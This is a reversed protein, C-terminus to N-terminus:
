RAALARETDHQKQHWRPITRTGFEQECDPCRLLGRREHSGEPLPQLQEELVPARRIPRITGGDDSRWAVWQEGKVTIEIEEGIAPEERQGVRIGHQAAIGKLARTARRMLTNNANGHFMPNIPSSWNLRDDLRELLQPEDPETTGIGTMLSQVALLAEGYERELESAFTKKLTFAHECKPCEDPKLQESRSYMKCQNCWGAELLPIEERVPEKPALAAVLDSLKIDAIAPQTM